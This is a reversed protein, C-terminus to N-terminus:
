GTQWIGYHAHEKTARPPKPEANMELQSVRTGLNVMCKTLWVAIDGPSLHGMGVKELEAQSKGDFHKPEPLSM